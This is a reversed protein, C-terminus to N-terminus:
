DLSPMRTPPLTMETVEIGLHKGSLVIAGRAILMQNAYLAIPAGCHDDLILVTGIRLSLIDNLTRRTSGLEASVSVPVDLLLELGPLNSDIM